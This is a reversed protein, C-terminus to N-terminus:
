DSYTHGDRLGITDMDSHVVCHGDAVVDAVPIFDRDPDLYADPDTLGDFDMDADFHFDTFHDAYV